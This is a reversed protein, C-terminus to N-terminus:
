KTSYKIMLTYGSYVGIFYMENLQIGIVPHKVNYNHLWIVHFLSMFDFSMFDAYSNKRIAFCLSIFAKLYVLFCSLSVCM